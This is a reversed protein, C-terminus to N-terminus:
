KEQPIVPESDYRPPIKRLDIETVEGLGTKVDGVVRYLVARDLDQYTILFKEQTITMSFTSIDSKVQHGGLSIVNDATHSEADVIIRTEQEPFFSMLLSMGMFTFSGSSDNKSRFSAFKQLFMDISGLSVDGTRTIFPERQEGLMQDAAQSDPMSVPSLLKMPAGQNAPASHVLIFSFSLILVYLGSERLSTRKGM